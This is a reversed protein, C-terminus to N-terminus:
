ITSYPVYGSPPFSLDGSTIPYLVPKPNPNKRRFPICFCM